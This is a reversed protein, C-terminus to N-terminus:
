KGSKGRTSASKGTSTKKPAAKKPAAKKAASKPAPKKPAAKRGGGTARGTTGEALTEEEADEAESGRSRLSRKLMEMMDVVDAPKGPEPVESESAMRKTQGSEIRKEIYNMLSETYTDHYAEPKWDGTMEEMLREAMKLEKDGLNVEKLDASPLDYEELPRLEDAFRMLEVVLANEYVMLAALHQRTHIVVQAVGIRCSRRMAERLLAYSRRAKKDPVLYYPKDYYVPHIDKCDVFDVIDISQTQEPRAKKFDADSLLVFEDREYEYGKVISDWPVEEGSKENVRHYKIPALNRRDLMRLKLENPKEAAYLGVPINVLGFNIAGKWIARAM